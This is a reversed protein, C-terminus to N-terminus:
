GTPSSSMMSKAFAVVKNKGTTKAAYMAEDAQKVLQQSSVGKKYKSTGLSVTVTTETEVRSRIQEALESPDISPDTIMVVMEEGGYRACIGYDGTEEQIIEAVKKLMLDGFDHGKTDNLKKFNDIDSFILSLPVHNQIYRTLRGDFHKRNYLRTLGDTISSTYIAHMLEIVREFVFLFIIVFFGIPLLHEAITYFPQNGTFMYANIMHATHACFYITLAAQYAGSQGVRTTVFAFCFFLLVFIYLELWLRQLLILQPGSAEVFGPTYVYSVGLLATVTLSLLLLFSHRLRTVNYLQFLGMNMLLFSLIQLLLLTLDAWAWNVPSLLVVIQMSYHAMWLLVSLTLTLYAKKGRSFLLRLTILLMLLLVTLLTTHAFASGIPGFFYDSFKM